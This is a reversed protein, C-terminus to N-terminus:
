STVRLHLLNPSPQQPGGPARLSCSGVVWSSYGITFFWDWFMQLAVTALGQLLLHREMSVVSILNQQQDLQTETPAPYPIAIKDMAEFLYSGQGAVPLQTVWTSQTVRRSGLQLWLFCVPSDGDPSYCGLIKCWFESAILRQKCFTSLILLILSVLTKAM